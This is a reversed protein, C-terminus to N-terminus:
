DEGGAPATCLTCFCFTCIQGSGLESCDPGPKGDARESWERARSEDSLDKQVETNIIIPDPMEKTEVKSRTCTFPLSSGRDEKKKSPSGAAHSMEAMEELLGFRFLKDPESPSPTVSERKNSGEYLTVMEKVTILM